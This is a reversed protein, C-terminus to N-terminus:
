GRLCSTEESADALPTAVTELLLRQTRALNDLAAARAARWAPVIAAFLTFGDSAVM